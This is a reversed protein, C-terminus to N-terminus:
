LRVEYDIWSLPGREQLDCNDLGKNWFVCLKCDENNLCNRSLTVACKRLEKKEEDTLEM